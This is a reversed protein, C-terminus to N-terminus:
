CDKFLTKFFWIIAEMIFVSILIIGTCFVFSWPPPTGTESWISGFAILGIGIGSSISLVHKKM